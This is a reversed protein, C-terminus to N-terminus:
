PYKFHWKIVVIPTAEIRPTQIPGRREAAGPELECRNEIKWGIAAPHDARDRVIEPFRSDIKACSRRCPPHISQGYVAAGRRRILRAVLPQRLTRAPRM